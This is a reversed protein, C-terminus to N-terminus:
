RCRGAVAARDVHAHGDIALLLGDLPRHDALLHREVDDHRTGAAVDDLEGDIRQRRRASRLGVVAGDRQDVADALVQAHQQDGALRMGALAGPAVQEFGVGRDVEHMEGDQPRRLLLVARRDVLQRQDGERRALQEDLLDVIEVQDDEVAVLVAVHQRDEIVVVDGFIHFLAARQQDGGPRFIGALLRDGVRRQDGGQGAQGRALHDLLAEIRAQGVGALAM